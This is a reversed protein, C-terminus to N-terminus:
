ISSFHRETQRTELISEASKNIEQKEQNEELVQEDKKHEDIM